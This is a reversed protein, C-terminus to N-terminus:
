AFVALKLVFQAFSPLAHRMACAQIAARDWGTHTLTVRTGDAEVCFAVDITEDGEPRDPHWTFSVLHPPNWAVVTGWDREKGSRTREYVRGGTRPEIVCSEAEEGGISHSALPWWESLHATFLEFADELSCDVVVSQRVPETGKEQKPM